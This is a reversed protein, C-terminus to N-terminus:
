RESSVLGTRIAYRVLGPIDRINLRESVQVRYTEVTKASLNLSYAIEKITKGEAILQLIQRQRPSLQAVTAEHQRGGQLYTHIATRSISPGLYTRGQAVSKVALELEAVAADKLVYGAAGATLAQNVFEENSHMSVIIVKTQPYQNRICVLTELGNMHPMAIDMLAIHPRHTAILALAENGDSAEGVVEVSPMADLLSRFGARVLRHDDALLIRIQHM